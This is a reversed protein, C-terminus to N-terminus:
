AQSWGSLVVCGLVQGSPPRFQLKSLRDFVYVLVLIGEFLRVFSVCVCVRWCWCIFSVCLCNVYLSVM